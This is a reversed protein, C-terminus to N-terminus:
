TVVHMNANEAREAEETRSAESERKALDSSLRQLSRPHLWGYSHLCRGAFMMLGATM